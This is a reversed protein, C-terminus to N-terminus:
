ALAAFMRQLAPPLSRLQARQLGWVLLGVPHLQAPIIAELASRAAVVWPASSDVSLKQVLQIAWKVARALIHQSLPLM